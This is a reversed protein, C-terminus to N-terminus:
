FREGDRPSTWEMRSVCESKRQRPVLKQTLIRFYQSVESYLLTRAPTKNLGLLNERNLRFFETLTTTSGKGQAIQEAIDGDDWLYVTQNDKDHM